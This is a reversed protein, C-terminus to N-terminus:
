NLALLTAYDEDIQQIVWAQLRHQSDKIVDLYEGSFRAVEDVIPQAANLGDVLSEQARVDALIERVRDSTMNLDSSGSVLEDAFMRELFDALQQARETGSQDSRHLTVLALSYVGIGRLVPRFYDWHARYEAVLEGHAYRRLYHAQNAELGYNLEAVLNITSEAFPTIDLRRSSRFGSCGMVTLAALCAM